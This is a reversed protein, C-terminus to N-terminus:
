SRRPAASTASPWTSRTRARGRRQLDGGRRPPAEGGVGVRDLDEAQGGRRRPHARRSDRQVQLYGEGQALTVFDNESRTCGCSPRTSCRWCRSTSPWSASRGSRRRRRSRCSRRTSSRARPPSSRSRSSTSPAMPRRRAGEQCSEVVDDISGKLLFASEPVDDHKGDLVERFSRVTEAVPVYQGPTGTFQEAVHFPQSLFREIKRARQVTCRTRTPSSTSASSPSSTRCSATASCCRRSRTPSTSTSRASSTRSSSRPRRTWRTSRRTSARRRSRARSCRPRTSTPSRRRRAGPRHPRGGARLHGAGLHGLGQPDLHDAGAAPGDRVRADAPLGGAVAHPGPARVGRLRGARVPLHQRHVAARGPGREDRFYEAMTLGSLAVRMRAGPPENMQGFVLMTKDIVGSEKM